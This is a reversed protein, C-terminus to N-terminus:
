ISNELRKVFSKEHAQIKENREKLKELTDEPKRKWRNHTWLWYPPNRKITKEMLHMYDETLRFQEMSATDETMVKFTAHYYGRKVREVDIYIVPFGTQVAIKEPGTIPATPQNLFDMWFYINKWLTGQDAIFCYIGLRGARKETILTRLLKEQPVLVSGSKERLRLYFKDMVGNELTHYVSFATFEPHRPHMAKRAFTLWEWNGYHGLYLILSKGKDYYDDLLDMNEFTFRKAMQKDSMSIAKLTEFFMDCFYSYFQREYKRLEKESKEPFSNHLNRRVLEKRYGIIYYVLVYLIDSFLYLMRLPFLSILYAIYYIVKDM